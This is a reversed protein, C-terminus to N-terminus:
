AARVTDLPLSILRGERAAETRAFRTRAQTEIVGVAEDSRGPDHHFLVLRGVGAAEALAVAAEWTSHGWGVRAPGADGRYEAPTYQADYILVDANTALRLLTPDICAYHETDTAFVVSRGRYSIRYAIVGGGPHNLRASTVRVDGIDFMQGAKISRFSVLSPLDEWSVPFTPPQMQQVIAARLSETAGGPCQGIIRLRTGPVYIPTFFPLGQIHDWHLHSLLISADVSQGAQMLADGCARLGTGADLLIRQGDCEVEVCTTNGGVGATRPGPTAISGRVGWFRITMHQM